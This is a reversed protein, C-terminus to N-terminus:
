CHTPGSVLTNFHGLRLRWGATNGHLNVFALGSALSHGALEVHAHENSGNGNSDLSLSESSTFLISSSDTNRIMDTVDSPAMDTEMANFTLLSMQSRTFASYPENASEDSDDVLPTKPPRKKLVKVTKTTIPPERDYEGTTSSLSEPALDIPSDPDKDAQALLPKAETFTVHPDKRKPWPDTETQADVRPAKTRPPKTAKVSTQQEDIENGPTEQEQPLQEEAVQERAEDKEPAEEAVAQGQVTQGRDGQEEPSEKHPAQNEPDQEKSVREEQTEQEAVQELPAHEESAQHLGMETERVEREWDEDTEPTQGVYDQTQPRTAAAWEADTGPTQLGVTTRNGSTSTGDLEANNTADLQSKTCLELGRRYSPM